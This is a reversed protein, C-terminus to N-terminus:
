YQFCRGGNGDFAGVFHSGSPCSTGATKESTQVYPRVDIGSKPDQEQWRFKINLANECTDMGGVAKYMDLMKRMDRKAWELHLCM